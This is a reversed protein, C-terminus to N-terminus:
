IKVWEVPLMKKMYILAIMIMSQLKFKVNKIKMSIKFMEAAEDFLGIRQKIRAISYIMLLEAQPKAEAPLFKIHNNFIGRTRPILHESAKSINDEGMWYAGLSKHIYTFNETIRSIKLWLDFDEVGVLSKDESFGGAKDLVAKKVVVSSNPLCNTKLMLDVFVPKKLYRGRMKKLRKWRKPYVDLDHYLIDSTNLYHAGVELKEPYWWDDSDLFAIYEGLAHKIGYNRSAAIIGYNRFKLYKIRSDKYSAVIEETNDESYNDIIILEFNPYTQNLVSEIAEGIFRAHNYTPMIVSVLPQKTNNSKM